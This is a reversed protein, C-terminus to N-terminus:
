SIKERSNFLLVAPCGIEKQKCFKCSISGRVFGTFPFAIIVLLLIVSLRLWTFDLILLFIGIVLPIISVLFDPVIDVWTIKKMKFRELSGRKFLLSCIKGKGFACLKGYYYCDRCSMLLIRTELFLCYLLYLFAYIKGIDAIIYAGIIYILINSLTCLLVLPLPFEEYIKNDM